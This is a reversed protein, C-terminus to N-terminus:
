PAPSSAGHGGPMASPTAPPKGTVYRALVIVGLLADHLVVTKELDNTGLYVHSLM